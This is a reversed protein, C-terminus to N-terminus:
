VEEDIYAEFRMHLVGYDVTMITDNDGHKELYLALELLNNMVEKETMNTRIKM